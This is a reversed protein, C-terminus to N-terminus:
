YMEDINPRNVPKISKPIPINVKNEERENMKALEDAVTALGQAILGLYVTKQADQDLELKEMAETVKILAELHTM